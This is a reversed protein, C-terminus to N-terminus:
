VCAKITYEITVVIIYQVLCHVCLTTKKLLEKIKHLKKVIKLRNTEHDQLAIISKMVHDALHYKQPICM